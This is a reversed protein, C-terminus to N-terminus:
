WHQWLCILFPVLSACCLAVLGSQPHCACQLCVVLSHTHTHSLSTSRKCQHKPLMTGLEWAALRTSSISYSVPHYFSASFSPLWFISFARIGVHLFLYKDLDEFVTAQKFELKNRGFLPSSKRWTLFFNVHLLNHFYLFRICLGSEFIRMRSPYIIRVIVCVVRVSCDSQDFLCKM